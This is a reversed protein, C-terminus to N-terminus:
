GSGGLSVCAVVCRPGLVWMVIGLGALLQLARVTGSIRSLAIHAKHEETHRHSVNQYAPHTRDRPVGFDVGPTHQHQHPRPKRPTWAFKASPPKNRTEWSTRFTPSDRPHPPVAALTRDYARRQRDDSLVAYAESARRFHSPSNPDDSLDPHHTKSLQYFSSKIQAKSANRPVNLAHYHDIIM